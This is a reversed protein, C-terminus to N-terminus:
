IFTDLMVLYVTGMKGDDVTYILATAVFCIILMTDHLTGANFHWSHFVRVNEQATLFSVFTNPM